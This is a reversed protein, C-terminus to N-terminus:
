ITWQGHIVGVLYWTGNVDEFVLRLSRWDIGEYQPDFGTFHFELFHGNPYATSINNTTNGKGVIVNNGIVHPNIFDVDYIYKEYYDNFNLEIPDGTGDYNGWTYIQNNSGLEAVQDATFVMDKQLNIYDYPTFRVGKTPHVYSSLTDMDKTKISDLVDIVTSLLNNVGSTPSKDTSEELEKIREELETIKEDKEKIQDELKSTDTPSNTTCSSLIMTLVVLILITKTLKFKM